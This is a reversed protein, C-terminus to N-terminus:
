STHTDQYLLVCVPVSHMVTMDCPSFFFYVCPPQRHLCLHRDSCVRTDTHVSVRPHRHLFVHRDTCACRDTTVRESLTFRCPSFFLCVTRSDTQRGSMRDAYYRISWFCLVCWTVKEAYYQMSKLGATCCQTGQAMWVSAITLNQNKFAFHEGGVIFSGGLGGGLGGGGGGGGGAAAPSMRAGVAAVNKRRLKFSAPIDGFDVGLSSSLMPPEDLVSRADDGEGKNVQGDQPLSEDVPTRVAGDAAAAAAAAAAAPTAPAVIEPSGSSAGKTESVVSAGGDQVAAAAAAAAEATARAGKDDDAAGAGTSLVVAAGAGAGAVSVAEAGASVGQTATGSSGSIAAGDVLAAAADALKDSEGEGGGGGGGGAGTLSALSSQVAAGSASGTAIAPAVSSSPPPSFPTYFSPLLSPVLCARRDNLYSVELRLNYAVSVALWVVRKM